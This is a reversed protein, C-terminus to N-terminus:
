AAKAHRGRLLSSLARRELAVVAALAAAGLAGAALVHLLPAPSLRAVGHSAGALVACMAVTPRSPVLAPANPSARHRVVAYRANYAFRAMSGVIGALVLGVSPPLGLTSEGLPSALYACLGVHAVTSATLVANARTLEAGAATAHLHAEAVGNAAMAAVYVAFWQLCAAAEAGDDGRAYRPGYLM